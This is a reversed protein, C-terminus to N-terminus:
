RRARRPMSPASPLPLAEEDGLSVALEELLAALERFRKRPLAALLRRENKTHAAVIEEALRRGRETLAVKRSRRDDHDQVRTILGRSELAGLRKTMGGSTVMLSRSLQTPTLEFPSGARRLTALVDFEGGNVGFRAFVPELQQQLLEALRSIRGIVAM